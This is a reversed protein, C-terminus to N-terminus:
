CGLAVTVLSSSIVCIVGLWSISGIEGVVGLLWTGFTSLLRLLGGASSDVGGVSCLALKTCFSSVHVTGDFPEARLASNPFSAIPSLGFLVLFIFCSSQFLPCTTVTRIYT